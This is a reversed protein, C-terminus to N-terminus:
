KQSVKNAADKIASGAADVGADVQDAVTPNKKGILLGAAIGVVLGALFTIIPLNM